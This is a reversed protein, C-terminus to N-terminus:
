AGRTFDYPLCLSSRDAQAVLRLTRDTVEAQVSHHLCRGGLLLCLLYLVHMSNFGRDNEDHPEFGSGGRCDLRLLVPYNNESNKRACPM